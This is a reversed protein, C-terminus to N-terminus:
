KNEATAVTVPISLFLLIVLCHLSEECLDSKIFSYNILIIDTMEQITTNANIDNKLFYVANIIAFKRM